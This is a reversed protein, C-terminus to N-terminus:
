YVVYARAQAIGMPTSLECAGPFVFNNFTEDPSNIQSLRRVKASRLYMRNAAQFHFYVEFETLQPSAGSLNVTIWQNLSLTYQANLVPISVTVSSIGGDVRVFDQFFGLRLMNDEVIPNILSASVAYGSSLNAYNFQSFDYRQTTSDFFVSGNQYYSDDIYQFEKGVIAIPNIGGERYYSLSTMLTAIDPDPTYNNIPYFSSQLDVISQMWNGPDNESSDVLFTDSEIQSFNASRDLFYPASLQSSDFASYLYHMNELHSQAAVNM